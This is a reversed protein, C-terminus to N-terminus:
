FYIVNRDGLLIALADYGKRHYGLPRHRKVVGGANGNCALRALTALYEQGDLALARVDKHELNTALLVGLFNRYLLNGRGIHSPIFPLYFAGSM